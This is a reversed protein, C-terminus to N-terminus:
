EGQILKPLNVEAMEYITGKVFEDALTNALLQRADDRNLGFITQIENILILSIESLKFM